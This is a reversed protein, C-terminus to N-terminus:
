GGVEIAALALAFAADPSTYWRELRFGGAALM